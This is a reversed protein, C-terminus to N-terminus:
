IRRHGHILSYLQKRREELRCFAERLLPALVVARPLQLPRVYAVNTAVAGDLFVVDIAVHKSVSSFLGKAAGVAGEAGGALDVDM